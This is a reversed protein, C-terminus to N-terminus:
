PKRKGLYNVIKGMAYGAVFSVCFSILMTGWFPM